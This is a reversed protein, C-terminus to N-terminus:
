NRCAEKMIENIMMESSFKVMNENSARPKDKITTDTGQQSGRMWINKIYNLLGLKNNNELYQKARATYRNRYEESIEIEPKNLIDVFWKYLEDVADHELIRIDWDAKPLEKDLFWTLTNPVKSLDKEKSKEVIKQKELQKALQADLKEKEKMSREWTYYEKLRQTLTMPSGDKNKLNTGFDKFREPIEIAKPMSISKGVGSPVPTKENVKETLVEFVLKIKKKGLETDQGRIRKLDNVKILLDNLKRLNSINLDQLASEFKDINNEEALEDIDIVHKTVQLARQKPPNFLKSGGLGPTARNRRYETRRDLYEMYLKHKQEPTADIPPNFPKFGSQEIRVRNQDKLKEQEKIAQQRREEKQEELLQDLMEKRYIELAKEYEKKQEETANHPLVPRDPQYAIKKM